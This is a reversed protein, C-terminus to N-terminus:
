ASSRKAEQGLAILRAELYQVNGYELDCAKRFCSAAEGYRRQMMAIRGATELLAPNDGAEGLYGEVFQRAEEVRGLTVLVEGAAQLASVNRPDLAYARRYTTLAEELRDARELAVALLYVARASKPQQQVARALEAVARPYRGKEIYVTGLLMRADMSEPALALAEQAKNKARDLQGVRLHEKGVGCLMKARTQYWRQYALSKAEKQPHDLCGSGALLLAATAAIWRIRKM